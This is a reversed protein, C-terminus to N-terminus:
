SRMFQRNFRFKNFTYIQNILSLSVYADYNGYDLFLLKYLPNTENTVHYLLSLKEGSSYQSDTTSFLDNEFFFDFRNLEWSEENEATAKMLNDTDYAFVSNVFVLLYFLLFLQKIKM